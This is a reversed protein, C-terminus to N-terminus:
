ERRRGFKSRWLAAMAEFLEIVINRPVVCFFIDVDFRFEQVIIDHGQAVGDNQWERIETFKRMARKTSLVSTFDAADFHECFFDMAKAIISHM